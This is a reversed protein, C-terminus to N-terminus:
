DRGWNGSRRWSAAGHTHEAPGNRLADALARFWLGMLSIRGRNKLAERASDMYAEALANGMEDRFDPPYLRELLRFWGDSIKLGGGNTMGCGEASPRRCTRGADHKGGAKNGRPGGAIRYQYDPLLEAARGRGRGRPAGVSRDAGGGGHTGFGSVHHGPGS